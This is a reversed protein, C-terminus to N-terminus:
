DGAYSNYMNYAKTDKKADKLMNSSVIVFSVDTQYIIVCCKCLVKMTIYSMPLCGTYFQFGFM